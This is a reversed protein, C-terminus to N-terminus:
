ISDVKVVTMNERAEDAAYVCLHGNVSDAISTYAPSPKKGQVMKLFDDVLRGDGGM